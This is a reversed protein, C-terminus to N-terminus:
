RFTPFVYPQDPAEIVEIERLHVLPVIFENYQSQDITGSIQIWTDNEFQEAEPFEVLTGYVAADAVCCTMSFRAVVLQNEEFDPERYVFGMIEIERGIFQDLHMDLVTMVDLYNEDTVIIRDEELLENALEDYYSNFGEETYFDEITYHETDTDGGNALERYYQDPDDLFAEARATSNQEPSAAAPTPKSYLGSGLQIGRNAAVSSDLVHDPLMFGGVIPVIFIGYVILQRLRSGSMGHDAGCDCAIEEEQNKATSRLIQIVGLILFVVTAFYIFPMMKPSIYLQISGSIIFGLLLLAFGILIIGRIYAHFSLNKIEIDNNM